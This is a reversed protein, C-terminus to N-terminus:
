CEGGRSWFPMLSLCRPCLWSDVYAFEVSKLELAPENCRDCRMAPDLHVLNIALGRNGFVEPDLGNM